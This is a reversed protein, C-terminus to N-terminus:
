RLAERLYSSLLHVLILHVDEIQEMSISPVVLCVEVINKLGGGEFGTLGVTMAGKNNAFIVAEVVDRSDGSASIAIVVDDEELLTALQGVFINEYSTDNAWATLLSVNDTLAIAKVFLGKVLDCAFHSSTAASGGNGMIFICKGDRHTKLLINKIREIQRLPIKDLTDKLEALYNKAFNM